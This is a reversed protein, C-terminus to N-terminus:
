YLPTRRRSRQRQGASAVLVLLATLGAALSGVLLSSRRVRATTTRERGM